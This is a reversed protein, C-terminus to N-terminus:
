YITMRKGTNYYDLELGWGRSLFLFGSKGRDFPAHEFLLFFIASFNSAAFIQAGSHIDKICSSRFILGVLFNSLYKERVKQVDELLFNIKALLM